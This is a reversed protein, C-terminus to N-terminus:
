ETTAELLMREAQQVRMFMTRDGTPQDPHYEAKLDRAAAKIVPERDEGAPLDLVAHPDEVAEGSQADDGAPLAQAAFESEITSVGYRELARKADLYRAIAQANDPLNDWKDCPAAYDEGDREFYAVVSPDEPRAEHYPRHGDKIQPAAVSIRITSEDVGWRDLQTLINEFAQSQTTRFNHPYPEREDPPTRPFGEPWDVRAAQHHNNQSM